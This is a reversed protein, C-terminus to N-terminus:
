RPQRPWAKLALRAFHLQRETIDDKTWSSRSGAAKTLPLQSRELVPRKQAWPKNGIKANPGKQLLAMNGLRHVWIKQEEDSFHDWDGSKPSKPLVHELNLKEEDANPVLEPERHGQETRELVAILYRAFKSSTIRVTSFTAEFEQDTPVVESLAQLLDETTKLKGDRIAVAADCYYRETKGGGIGGVILGRVAWSVLARLTKILERKEFHRIAALLLPRMQELNLRNLTEVNDKTETGIDAWLEHDSNLLAAYHRAAEKLDQSLKVVQPETVVHDKISKFLLRERTAGHKSSWFHRLFTTFLSNEASMEMAGLAEMWGDRVTNLSTQARGFLYNKLLDAITLDAGRDNLTEFILFADAQTPVEVVVVRVRKRLFETLKLLREAWDRGADNATERVFGRLQSYAEKILNHSAHLPRITSHELEEIVLQQFFPDDASNLRLRPIGSASALDPVTLFQDHIISARRDDGRERYEDRIAALLLCGTALRQQGDIITDAGGTDEQSLVMTGLFYEARDRSFASRIDLWFDDVEDEGWSYSRQYVPVALRRDMLVHGIADPIFKYDSPSESAM